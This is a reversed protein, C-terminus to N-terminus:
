KTLLMSGSRREAELDLVVGVIGGRAVVSARFSHGMAVSGHQKIIYVGSGSRKSRIPQVLLQLHVFLFHLDM